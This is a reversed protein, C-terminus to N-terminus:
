AFKLQDKMKWKKHSQWHVPPRDLLEQLVHTSQGQSCCPIASRTQCM